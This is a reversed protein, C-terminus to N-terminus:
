AGKTNKEYKQPGVGPPSKTKKKKKKESKLTKPTEPSKVLGAPNYCKGTLDKKHNTEKEETGLLCLVIVM